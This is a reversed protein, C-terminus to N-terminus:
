VPEKTEAKKSKPPCIKLYDAELDTDNAHHKQNELFQEKTMTKVSEENYRITIM